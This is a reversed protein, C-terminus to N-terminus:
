KKVKNFKAYSKVEGTMMRHAYAVGTAAIFNDNNINRNAYINPYIIKIAKIMEEYRQKSFTVQINMMPEGTNSALWAPLKVTECKGELEYSPLEKQLLERYAFAVIQEAISPMQVSNAPIKHAIDVLLKGVLDYEKRPVKFILDYYNM